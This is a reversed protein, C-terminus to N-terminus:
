CVFLVTSPATSRPGLKELSNLGPFIFEGKTDRDMFLSEALPMAELSQGTLDELGRATAAPVAFHPPIFPGPETSGKSKEHAKIHGTLEPALFKLHKFM